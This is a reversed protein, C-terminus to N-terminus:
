KLQHLQPQISKGLHKQSQLLLLQPMLQNVM